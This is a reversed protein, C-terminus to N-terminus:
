LQCLERELRQNEVLAKDKATIAQQLKSTEQAMEAHLRQISQSDHVREEDIERLALQFEKQIQDMLDLCNRYTAEHDKKRTSKVVPQGQFRHDTLIVDYLLIVHHSHCVLGKRLKAVPSLLSRDAKSTSGTSQASCPSSARSRSARSKAKAAGPGACRSPKPDNAM